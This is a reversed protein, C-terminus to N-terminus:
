EGIGEEDGGGREDGGDVSRGGDGSGPERIVSRPRLLTSSRRLSRVKLALIVLFIILLIISFM